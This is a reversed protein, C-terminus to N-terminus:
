ATPSSLSHKFKWVCSSVINTITHAIIPILLNNTTLATYGLGFGVITAWIVYPWQKRGSFHLSGFIVSSIILGQMNLGLIPLMVGRFLLEESLGPLLGVWLLDPWALPDIVLQLYSDASQRYTPWLRYLLGSASSIGAALGLAIFLSSRDFKVPILGVGTVYLSLKAIALLIVATVGMFILVQNRSLSESDPNPSNTV